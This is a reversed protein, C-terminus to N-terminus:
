DEIIKGDKEINVVVNYENHKSYPKIQEIIAWLLSQLAECEPKQTADDNYVFGETYDTEDETEAPLTLTWGNSLCKIIM